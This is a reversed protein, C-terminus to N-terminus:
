LVVFCRTLAALETTQVGRDDYAHLRREGGDLHTWRVFWESVKESIEKWFFFRTRRLLIRSMCRAEEM